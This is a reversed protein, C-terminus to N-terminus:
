TRQHRLAVDRLCQGLLGLRRQLAVPKQALPLIDQCSYLMYLLVYVSPDLGKTSGKQRLIYAVIAACNWSALNKLRQRNLDRLDLHFQWRDHAAKHAYALLGELLQRQTLTSTPIVALIRKKDTKMDPSYIMLTRIQCYKHGIKITPNM